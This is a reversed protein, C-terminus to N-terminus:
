DNKIVIDIRQPRLICTHERIHVSLTANCIICHLNESTNIINAPLPTHIHIYETSM